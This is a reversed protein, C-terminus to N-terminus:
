LSNHSDVFAIAEAVVEAVRQKVEYLENGSMYFVLDVEYHYYKPPLRNLAVCSVDAMFDITPEDVRGALQSQVEDSVLHEYYNTICDVIAM